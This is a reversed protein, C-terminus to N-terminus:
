HLRAAPPRSAIEEIVAKPVPLLALDNETMADAYALAPLMAEEHGDPDLLHRMAAALCDLDGAQSAAVMALAFCEQRCVNRCGGPLCAVPCISWDRVARTFQALREVLLRAPRAGLSGAHLNWAAEWHRLDGTAYGAMWRRFGDLVLREPLRDFLAVSRGTPIASGM